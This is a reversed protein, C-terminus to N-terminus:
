ATELRSMPPRRTGRHAIVVLGIAALALVAVWGAHGDRLLRPGAFALLLWGAVAAAAGVLDRAGIRRLRTSYATFALAAAVCLAFPVIGGVGHGFFYGSFIRHYWSGDHALIPKTATIGTMAAVSPVALAVTTLPWSRYALALPVALFPLTAVLFRPGPSWGGFPDEYGSNYLLFLIPIGAVVAAEWRHGARYLLFVGAAGVAVVPELTLLGVHTFLLRVGVQFSPWHVGFFGARNFGLQDHGSAGGVSVAHEYTIHLPNGFAWWNFILLPLLGIAVGAAYPLARVLRSGAPATVLVYLGLVIAVIGLPYESTVAYGAALGAAACWLPEARKWWLIAFAIFGLSASLAHDVFLTTIPLVLTGLGLTVAAVTGFGAALGDGIRRLLFLACLMPIACGIIALLWLTGVETNKAGPIHGMLSVVGIGHLVAYPGATLLALGPAKTSYYHGKYWAVDGTESRYEDIYAHGKTLSRVTGFNANQMWSVGQPISIFALGVALLAIV